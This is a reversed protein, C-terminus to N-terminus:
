FIPTDDDDLQDVHWDGFLSVRVDHFRPVEIQGQIAPFVNNDADWVVPLDAPTPWRSMGANMNAVPRGSLRDHYFYSLGCVQYLFMQDGPCHFIEAGAKFQGILAMTLPPNTNISILPAALSRAVPMKGDNAESFRDIAAGIRYLNNMCASRDARSRAQTLAPLLIGLLIALIAVVVLMEVLTLGWRYSGRM